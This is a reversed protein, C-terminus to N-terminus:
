KTYKTIKALGDAGDQRFNFIFYIFNVGISMDPVYVCIYAGTITKKKLLFAKCIIYKSPHAQLM